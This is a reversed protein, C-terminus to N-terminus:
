RGAGAIRYVRTGDKAATTVITLGLRKKLAGAIAGRVSHRQWGTAKALSDLTAGGPQKLLTIIRAQKSKPAPGRAADAARKRDQARSKAAAPAASAGDAPPLKEFAAWLRRLATARDTFKTIKRAGPLANWLAVLRAAPLDAKALDAASRVVLSGEPLAAPETEHTAVSEGIIVYLSM